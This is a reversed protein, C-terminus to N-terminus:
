ENIEFLRLNNKLAIIEDHMSNIRQLLHNIAEIGELNINLEYHFSIFKELQQLQAENIFETEKVTTIEVMGAQQLSSIFSVEINHSACFVDIAILNETQM